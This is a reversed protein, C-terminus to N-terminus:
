CKLRYKLKNEELMHDHKANTNNVKKEGWLICVINKVCALLANFLRTEKINSEYQTYIQEALGRKFSWRVFLYSLQNVSVLM